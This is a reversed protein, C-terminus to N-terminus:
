HLCQTRFYLQFSLALLHLSKSAMEMGSEKIRIKGNDAKIEMVNLNRKEDFSSQRNENFERITITSGEEPLNKNTFEKLVETSM